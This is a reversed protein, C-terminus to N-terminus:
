PHSEQYVADYAKILADTYDISDVAYVLQGKEFMMTIGEKTSLAVVQSGLDRLIQQTYTAEKARMEDQKDKTYRQFDKVQQQFDREKERKADDSLLAAQKQLSEQLAALDAQRKKIEEEIVAIESDMKAKAAKGAASLSLAKQLDVYGLKVDAASATAVFSLCMLAVILIRKM